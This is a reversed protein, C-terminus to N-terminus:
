CYGDTPDSVPVLFLLWKDEEGDIKDAILARARSNQWKEQEEPHAKRVLLPSTGDWLPKGDTELVTLNSRFASSNAFEYAEKVFTASFVAVARKAIEVAYITM